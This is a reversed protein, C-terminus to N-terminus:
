LKEDQEKVIKSFYDKMEYLLDMDYSDMNSSVKTGKTHYELLFDIIPSELNYEIYANHGLYLNSRWEFDKSNQWKPLEAIQTTEWIMNKLDIDNLFIKEIEIFRDVDTKMNKGYHLVKLNFKGKPVHFYFNEVTDKAVFSHVVVNDVLIKCKPNDNAKYELTCLISERDTSTNM